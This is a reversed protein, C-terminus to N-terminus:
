SCSAWAGGVDSATFTWNRDGSRLARGVPRPPASGGAALVNGAPLRIATHGTRPNNMTGSVTWTGSGAHYIEAQGVLNQFQDVGGSVLVDGSLLLTAQHGRRPFNMAGTPASSQAVPDYV